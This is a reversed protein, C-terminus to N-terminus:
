DEGLYRIYLATKGNPLKRTFAEWRDGRWGRLSHRARHAISAPTNPNDFTAVCAWDGPRAILQDRANQLDVRIGRGDRPPDQWKLAM